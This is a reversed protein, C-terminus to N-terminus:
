QINRRKAETQNPANELGWETEKDAQEKIQKDSSLRMNYPGKEDLIAAAEEQTPIWEPRDAKVREGRIVKDALEWRKRETLAHLQAETAPKSSDDPAGPANRPQKGSLRDQVNAWVAKDFYKLSLISTDGARALVARVAPLIDLDPDANWEDVWKCVPGLNFKASQKLPVRMLDLIQDGVLEFSKKPVGEDDLIRGQSGKPTVPSVGLCDGTVGGRDGTVGGFPSNPTDGMVGGTNPLFYVAAGRPGCKDQKVIAGVDQLKRLSRRVNSVDKIKLLDAITSASPWAHGSKNSHASLIAFVKLEAGGLKPHTVVGLPIRAFDLM